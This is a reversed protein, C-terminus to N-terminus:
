CGPFGRTLKQVQLGGLVVKMERLKGWDKWQFGPINGQASWVKEKQVYESVM